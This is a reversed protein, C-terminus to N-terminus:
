SSKKHIISENIYLNKASQVLQIVDIITENLTITAM